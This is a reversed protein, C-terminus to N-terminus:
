KEFFARLKEAVIEEDPGDVTAKLKDGHGAALTLIGLISKPNVEFEDKALTIESAVNKCINVLEAAPRAHLGEKFQITVAFEIM